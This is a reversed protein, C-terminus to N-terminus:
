KVCEKAQAEKTQWLPLLLQRRGKSWWISHVKYGVALVCIAQITWPLNWVMGKIRKWRMLVNWRMSGIRGYEDFNQRWIYRYWPPDGYDACRWSWRSCSKSNPYPPVYDAARDLLKVNVIKYSVNPDGSSRAEPDHLQIEVYKQDLSDLLIDHFANKPESARAGILNLYIKPYYNYYIINPDDRNNAWFEYDLEVYNTSTEDEQETINSTLPVQPASILRPRSPDPVRLALLEGNLLLHKGNDSVSFNLLLSSSYSSDASSSLPIPLGPVAVKVLASLSDEATLIANPATSDPPLDLPTDYIAPREKYIETDAAFRSSSTPFAGNTMASIIDDSSKRQGEYPEFSKTTGHYLRLTPYVKIDHCLDVQEFLRTTCDVKALVVNHDALFAAAIEYHPELLKCHGCWPVGFNVLVTDHQEILPAFTAQTLRHVEASVLIPLAILLRKLHM